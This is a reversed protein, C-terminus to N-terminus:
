PRDTSVSTAAVQARGAGLRELADLDAPVDLDFALDPDRVVVPRLGRRRAELRHRRFSGPGYAFRFPVDTPLALVPTGDGHRDPVVVARDLPASTAATFSTVLPLDAHAVLVRVAGEAAAWATGVAAAADLSGPDDVTALSRASAWRLVEAASSVVVVPMGQAADVVRDALRRALTSREASSLRPALRAKGGAFSRIPVVVATSAPARV